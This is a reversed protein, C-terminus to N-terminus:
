KKMVEKTDVIPLHITVETEVGRTSNITIGYESGFLYRIRQHVNMIGIHQGGLSTSDNNLKETLEILVEEKIGVGTDKIRIGFSSKSLLQATITIKIKKSNEGISHMFCNEVIPQLSFKVVDFDMVYDPIDFFYDFRDEFRFMQIQLYMECFKIEERLSVTPLSNRLNYRLLKGLSSSINAINERDEELAMGRITELSNYLFHPNIQSQLMRLETEKKNLSMEAEKLKSVYVEELLNSLREVTKNFGATLQGIEDNSEVKVRGNLHGIEVEKMFSRLRHIPRVISKSMSYFGVLYAFLLSIFITWTIATRIQQIGVRLDEYPAATFFSWGINPSFSYSVFEKRDNDILVSGSKESDLNTLQKFEVKNGLKTYNPHYVYHGNADLIFFYGNKDFTVMKSIEEIRKFNIDIILMGVPKLTHPNYLRRVLSIVPLEKDKLKLTRSVLLVMGNQPVSSYWYEEEINTAPYYNRERLSDIIIGNDLSVTINSIDNRSYESNKLVKYAQEKLSHDYENGNTDLRLLNGVEPSNIIKLSTIEFDQLYYEVHLEVQEIIKQSSQRFEEELEFSSYKYTIIGVSLVPLIVLVSSFVCFKVMLTQNGFLIYHKLSEIIKSWPKKM